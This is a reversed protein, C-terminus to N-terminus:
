EAPGARKRRFRHRMAARTASRLRPIGRRRCWRPRRRSCRCPRGRAGRRCRTESSEVRERGAAVVAEAVLRM